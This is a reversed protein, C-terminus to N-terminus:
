VGQPQAPGADYLDIWHTEAAAAMQARWERWRQLQEYSADVHGTSHCSQLVPRIVRDRVRALGDHWQALQSGPPDEASAAAHWRQLAILENVIAMHRYWCEPWEDCMEYAVVLWDVWARLALLTALQSDRLAAGDDDSSAPAATEQEKM